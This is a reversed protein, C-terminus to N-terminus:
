DVKGGGGGGEGGGWRVGETYLGALRFISAWNITYFMSIESCPVIQSGVLLDKMVGCVATHTPYLSRHQHIIIIM